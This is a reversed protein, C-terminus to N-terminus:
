AAELALEVDDVDVEVAVRERPEILVAAVIAGAVAIAALV